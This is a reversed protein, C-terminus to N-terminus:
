KNRELRLEKIKEKLEELDGNAEIYEKLNQDSAILADKVEETEVGTMEAYISILRRRVVTKLQKIRIRGYVVDEESEGIKEELKSLYEDAKEQTIKGAEVNKESVAQRFEYWKQEIESINGVAAFATTTGIALIVVISIILISKKNKM